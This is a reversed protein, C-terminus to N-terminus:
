DEDYAEMFEDVYMQLRELNEVVKFDNNLTQSLFGTNINQNMWEFIKSYYGDQNYIIILKKEINSRFEELASALEALTGIGGPLILIIQSMDYMEKFRVLTDDVLHCNAGDLEALDDEYMKVTFAEINRNYERFTKFCEGMMSFNAGGFVLNLGKKALYDSTERAMVLYKEDITKSASSAIFVNM